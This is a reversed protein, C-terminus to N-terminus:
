PLSWRQNTSYHLPYDIVHAGNATSAGAVDMVPLASAGDNPYEYYPGSTVLVESPGHSATLKMRDTTVDPTVYLVKGGPGVAALYHTSGSGTIKFKQDAGGRAGCTWQQLRTGSAFVGGTVDLCKGSHYNRVYGPGANATAPALGGRTSARAAGGALVVAAVLALAALAGLVLSPWTKGGRLAEIM